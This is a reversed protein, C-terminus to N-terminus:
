FMRHRDFLGDECRFVGQCDAIGVEIYVGRLVVVRGARRVPTHFSKGIDVGSVWGKQDLAFSSYGVAESGSTTAKSFGSCM